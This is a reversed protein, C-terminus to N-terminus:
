SYYYRSIVFNDQMISGEITKRIWTEVCRGCMCSKLSYDHITSEGRWRLVCVFSYSALFVVRLRLSAGFHM